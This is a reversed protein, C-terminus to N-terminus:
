EIRGFDKMAKLVIDAARKCYPGRKSFDNKIWEVSMKTITKVDEEPLHTVKIGHKDVMTKLAEQEKEAYFATMYITNAQVANV